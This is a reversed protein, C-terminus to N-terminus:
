DLMKHIYVLQLLDAIEPHTFKGKVIINCAPIKSNIKADNLASLRIGIKDRFDSDILTLWKPSNKQDEPFSGSILTKNYKLKDKPIFLHCGVGLCCCHNKRRELTGTAKKYTEAYLHSIWIQINKKNIKM